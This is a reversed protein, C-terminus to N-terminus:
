ERHFNDVVSNQFDWKDTIQNQIVQNDYVSNKARSQKDEKNIRRVFAYYCTQTFYAFPNTYNVPDYNDIYRLCNEVGDGVMEERFSYNIFNRRYSLNESIKLLMAGLENSVPIPSGNEKIKRKREVLLQQFRKNDVYHTTTDPLDNVNM